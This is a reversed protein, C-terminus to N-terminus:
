HQVSLKQTTVQGGTELRLQYLGAALKATPVLLQHAGAPRVANNLLTAVRRGQLDYLSVSVTSAKVLQYDLRSQQSAPNPWMPALTAVAPRAARNPTATKLAPGQLDDFYYTDGTKQGYDILMVIQNIDNATVSPDSAGATYQFTLTEWANAKTTVAELTGGLNGNPYGTASKAKDQLVMQVKVGAKPSYFKLTIKQAGSLYGSVDAFAQNDTPNIVIVDYDKDKNRTYKAVKESDNGTGKAPNAAGQEYAGDTYAYTVKRMADFDDLLVPTQPETPTTSAFEPGMLDDLHYTDGNKVGPAVLMVLQDVDTVKVSPDSAGASYVFTLTEWANAVTTKVDFTGGLNGNPYGTASKAKDQLVLQVSVGVAPSYFKMTIKKSGNLYSTVDALKRNDSPQLVIVAYDAGGDRVYKGVKDSNNAASKAPNDVTTLSSTVTPYSVQATHEFDDYLTQATAASGLLGLLSTLLLTRTSTKMM